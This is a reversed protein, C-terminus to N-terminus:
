CRSWLLVSSTQLGSLADLVHVEGPFVDLNVDKLVQVRGFSKSINKMRVVPQLMSRDEGTHIM